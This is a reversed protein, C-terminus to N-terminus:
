AAPRRQQRADKRHRHGAACEYLRANGRKGVERVAGTKRLCYAIRQAFRRDVGLCEALDITDFPRPLRGPILELLDCAKRFRHTDRIEVLRQDEVEYDGKRWRRRRGHGPYRWQEIDIMPVELTLRPHPFVGTFHVLEDFLDLLRGRKPSMRRATVEAGKASRRVLLKRVVIPKVVLVRHTRLLQGVKERIAALPGHQIEVLRDGVIVDVRYRGVPVESRAAGGAYLVKLERHLTTEM